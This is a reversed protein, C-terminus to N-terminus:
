YSASSSSQYSLGQELYYIFYLLKPFNFEHHSIRIYNESYRRLKLASM